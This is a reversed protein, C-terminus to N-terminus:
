ENGGRRICTAEILVVDVPFSHFTDPILDVHEGLSTVCVVLRDDRVSAGAVGIMRCTTRNLVDKAEEITAQPPEGFNDLYHELWHAWLPDGRRPQGAADWMTRLQKYTYYDDDYEFHTGCGRCIHHDEPPDEMRNFLCVPCTYMM